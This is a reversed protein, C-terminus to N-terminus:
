AQKEKSQFYKEVGYVALGGLAASAIPHQVLKELFGPHEQSAHEHMAGLQEPTAKEAEVSALQQSQPNGSQQFQKIFEQAFATRQEPTMQAYLATPDQPASQATPQADSM